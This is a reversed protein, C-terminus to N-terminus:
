VDERYRFADVGRGRGFNGRAFDVLGMAGARFFPRRTMSWVLLKLTIVPLFYVVGAIRTLGRFATTVLLLRNRVSYYLKFPSEKEGFVKHYIIARPVYLLDYGHRQIRASFEIDDLCMFFREDELGTEALATSRFLIMCGTIFTVTRPPGLLAPDLHRDFHDHVALGRWPIMRGGAYWVRTRDHNTYITGCAGAARPHAEMAEVLHTLFDPDVETDPNLVLIYEPSRELAFRFCANVGGTYGLNKGTSRVEIQPFRERLLPASDVTSGNDVVLIHPSPYRIALLSTICDVTYDTLNYNLIAITVRPAPM